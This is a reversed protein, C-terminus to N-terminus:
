VKWPPTQLTLEEHPHPHPPQSHLKKHPARILNAKWPPSIMLMVKWPHPIMLTVKWPPPRILNAKWPPPIMLTVKWPTNKYSQCKMPLPQHPPPPHAWPAPKMPIDKPYGWSRQRDRPPPPPTWWLEVTDAAQSLEPQTVVYSPLWWATKIKSSEDTNQSRALASCTKNPWTCTAWSRSTNISLLLLETILASRQYGTFVAFHLTYLSIKPDKSDTRICVQWHRDRRPTCLICLM